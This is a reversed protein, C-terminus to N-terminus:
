SSAAVALKRGRGIRSWNLHLGGDTCGKAQADLFERAVRIRLDEPSFGSARKVARAFSTASKFGLRFGLEKIPLTPQSAFLAKAQVLLIEERLLRFTGGTSLRIAKEITRRSVQLTQLLDALTKSPSEDLSSLIRDFLLTPDYSMVLEGSNYAQGKGGTRQTPAGQDDMWCHLSAPTDRVRPVM